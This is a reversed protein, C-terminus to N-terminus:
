RAIMPPPLPIACKIAVMERCREQVQGAGSLIRPGDDITFRPDSFRLCKLVFRFNSQTMLGEVAASQAADKGHVEVKSSM